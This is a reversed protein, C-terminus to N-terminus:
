AGKMMQIILDQKLEITKLKEKILELEMQNYRDQKKPKAVKNSGFAERVEEETKGFLKAMKVVARESPAQRGHLWDSINSGQVGLTKALKMKANRLIGDNWNKLLVEAASLEEM